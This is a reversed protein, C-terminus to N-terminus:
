LGALELAVLLATIVIAVPVIVAWPNRLPLVDILTKDGFSGVNLVRKKLKPYIAAADGDGVIYSLHALGESKIKRIFMSM